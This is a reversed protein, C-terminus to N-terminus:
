VAVCIRSRRTDGHFPLLVGTNTLDIEGRRGEDAAGWRRIAHSTKRAPAVTYLVVRHYTESNNFAEASNTSLLKAKPGGRCQPHALVVPRGPRKGSRVPWLWGYILSCLVVCERNVTRRKGSVPQYTRAHPQQCHEHIMSRHIATM